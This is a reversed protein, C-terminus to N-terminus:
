SAPPRRDPDPIDHRSQRDHARPDHFTIRHGREALARLIGRYYTTAGNWYSSVPSSGFCALNLRSNM